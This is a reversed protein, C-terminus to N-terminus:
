GARDTRQWTMPGKQAVLRAYMALKWTIYAPVRAIARLTIHRHGEIRWATALGILIVFLAGSLIGAPLGLDFGRLAIAMVSITVILSANLMVLLTFPPVLLHLGLWISPWYWDQIGQYVLKGSSQYSTKIFGGEWRARQASTGFESSSDSLTQAGPAFGVTQGSEVLEITLQLDEVINGTELALRDFIAWPFAMGSGTLIASAGIAVAGRQRFHNKIVLAFNSMQVIPTGSLDPRFWYSSQIPRGEAVCRHAIADLDAAAMQCDADLVIVALPPNERLLNRGFALAYGKGRRGPDHRAVVHIGGASVIEATKDTCNDAVVMVKRSIDDIGAWFSIMDAITQAENHAPVLIAVDTLPASATKKAGMGSLLSLIGTILEVIFILDILFILASIPVIVIKLFMTATM